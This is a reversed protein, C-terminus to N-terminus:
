ASVRFSASKLCLSVGVVLAQFLRQLVGHALDPALEAIPRFANDHLTPIVLAVDVCYVYFYAPQILELADSLISNAFEILVQAVIHFGGVDLRDSPGQKRDSQSQRGFLDNDIFISSMGSSKM